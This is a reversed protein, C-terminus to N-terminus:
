EPQSKRRRGFQIFLGLGLVGFGSLTLPLTAAQGTSALAAPATLGGPPGWIEFNASEDIAAGWLRSGDTANWMEIPFHVFMVLTYTGPELFTSMSPSFKGFVYGSNTYSGEFAGVDALAIRNLQTDTKDFNSYLAVDQFIPNIANASSGAGSADDTFFTDPSTQMERLFYDGSKHVTFTFTTFVSSTNHEADFASQEAPMVAPLTLQPESLLSKGTVTTMETTVLKIELYSSGIIAYAM